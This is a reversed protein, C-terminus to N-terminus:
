TRGAVLRNGRGTANTLLKGLAEVAQCAGDQDAPEGTAQEWPPSM